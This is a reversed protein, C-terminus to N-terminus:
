GAEPERLPDGGSTAPGPIGSWRWDRIEPLDRRAVVQDEGDLLRVKLSSSGANVVLIRM